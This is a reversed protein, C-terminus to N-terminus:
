YSEDLDETAKLETVKRQSFIERIFCLSIILVILSFLLINWRKAGWNSYITFPLKKSLHVDLYGETNLDLRHSIRGYPDILASIGTNASRLVPLGQEIARAQLQMLHQQPGSYSGFWADNTLHILWDVESINEDLEYSFISEYCIIIAFPPLNGVTMINPKTGKTFGTIGNSALGVIGVKKLLTGFPIYEGFPVLHKKDYSTKVQGAENLLYASNFLQKKSSLYKRAGLVIVKGLSESVKIAFGKEHELFFQVATEPWIILDIENINNKSLKFLKELHSSALEQKWKLEQSINPQVIRVQVAPKLHEDKVIRNEGYLFLMLFGTIGILIGKSGTISIFSLFIIISTLWYPGFLALSQGIPTEVFAVGFVVWPFGTFLYSRLLEALSLCAALKFLSGFKNEFNNRPTAGWFAFGWFISLTAALFILAFPAYIGTEKPRVLFPETIWLLSSFFYGFGFLWGCSFSELYSPRSNYWYWGICALVFLIIYPIFVPPHALSLALGGIIYVFYKIRFNQFFTIKKNIWM